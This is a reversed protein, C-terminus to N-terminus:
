ARGRCGTMCFSEQRQRCAGIQASNHRAPQIAMLSRRRSWSWYTRMASRLGKAFVMHRPTPDSTQPRQTGVPTNGNEAASRNRHQASPVVFGRALPQLSDALPTVEERRRPAPQQRSWWRITRGNQQALQSQPDTWEYALRARTLSHGHDAQPRHWAIAPGVPSLTLQPLAREAKGKKPAHLPIKERTVSRKTRCPQGQPLTGLPGVRPLYVGVAMHGWARRPSRNRNKLTPSRGVAGTSAM